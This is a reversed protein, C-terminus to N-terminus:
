SPPPTPTPRSSTRPSRTSLCTRRRRASCSPSSCPSPPRTTSSATPTRPSRASSRSPRARPKKASKPPIRCKHRRSVAPASLVCISTEQDRARRPAERRELPREGGGGAGDPAGHHRLGQPGRLLAAARDLPHDGAPPREADPAPEHVPALGQRQG